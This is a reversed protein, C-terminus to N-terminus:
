YSDLMDNGRQMTEYAKAILDGYLKLTSELEEVKTNADDRESTLKEVEGNLKDIETQKKSLEAELDKSKEASKQKGMIKAEMVKALDMFKKLNDDDSKQPLTGDSQPPSSEYSNSSPANNSAYSENGQTGPTSHPKAASLSQSAMSIADRLSKTKSPSEASM